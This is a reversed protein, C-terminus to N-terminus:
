RTKTSDTESESENLPAGCLVCYRATWKGEVLCTGCSVHKKCSFKRVVHNHLTYPGLCGNDGAACILLLLAIVLKKTAKM